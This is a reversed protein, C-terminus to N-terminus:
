LQTRAESIQIYGRTEFAKPLCSGVAHIKFQKNPLRISSLWSTKEATYQISRNVYYVSQTYM